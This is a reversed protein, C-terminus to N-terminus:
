GVYIVIAKVFETEKVRQVIMKNYEDDTMDKYEEENSLDDSIRDIYDEKDLWWDDYLTLEKVDCGNVNAKEYPYWDHWSDEGCFVTLPLDPNELILQRLNSTDQLSVPLKTDCTKVM